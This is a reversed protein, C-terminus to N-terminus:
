SKVLGKLKNWCSNIFIVTICNGTSFLTKTIYLKQYPKDDTLLTVSCARAQYNVHYAWNDHHAM